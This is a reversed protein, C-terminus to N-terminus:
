YGFREIVSLRPRFPKRRWVVEAQRMVVCHYRMASGEAGM